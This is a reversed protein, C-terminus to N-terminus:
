FNLGLSLGVTGNSLGWAGATVPGLIAKNASVGFVMNIPISSGALVSINFKSSNTVEKVKSDTNTKDKEEVSTDVTIVTEKSGDKNEKIVVKKKQNKTKQKEVEVTVTEVRVKEPAFHKGVFFGGTAVLVIVIYKNM